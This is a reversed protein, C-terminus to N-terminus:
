PTLADAFFNAIVPNLRALFAARDFGTPDEAPPGVSTAIAAPFPSLFAYHHADENLYASVNPLLTRIHDAHFPAELERDQTARILLTPMDAADANSFVVGLPAALTLAAVPPIDPMDDPVEPLRYVKRRLRLLLPLDSAAGCFRPDRAPDECHTQARTLDYAGGATALATFGGMSYGFLGLRQNDILPGFTPDALTTAIATRLEFQRSRFHEPTGVRLLDDPHWLAMVVFGRQVLEAAMLHHNWERGGLGHSIAVLGYTGPEPPTNRGYPVSWPGFATESGDHAAPYFLRIALDTGLARTEILTTAVGTGAALPLSSVMLAFLACLWRLARHRRTRTSRTGNM